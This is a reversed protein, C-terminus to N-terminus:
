ALLLIADHQKKTKVTILIDDSISIVGSINTLVQRIVVKFIEAAANIGFSQRRYRFSGCTLKSLGMLCSLFTTWRIRFKHREQKIATNPLAMDVCMRIKFSNNPKRM